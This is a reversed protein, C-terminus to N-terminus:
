ENEDSNMHCLGIRGSRNGAVIMKVNSSPFFKMVSMKGSMIRVRNEPKLTMYRQDFCGDLSTKDIKYYRKVRGRVEGDNVGDTNSESDSITNCEEKSHSLITQILVRNSGKGVNADKLSFGGNTNPSFKSKQKRENTQDVKDKLGETDPPMM